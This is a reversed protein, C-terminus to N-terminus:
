SKIEGPKVRWIFYMLDSDLNQNLPVISFTPFLIEDVIGVSKIM